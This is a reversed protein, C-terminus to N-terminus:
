DTLETKLDLIKMAQQENEAVKLALQQQLHLLQVKHNELSLKNEQHCGDDTKHTPQPQDLPGVLQRVDTLSADGILSVDQSPGQVKNQPISSQKLERLMCSDAPKKSPTM